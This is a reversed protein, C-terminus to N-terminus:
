QFFNPTDANPAYLPILNITGFTTKVGLFILNGDQDGESNPVEFKFDDEILIAVGRSNTRSRHIFSNHEWIEKVKLLVKTTWYKKSYKRYLQHSCRVEKAFETCENNLFHKM